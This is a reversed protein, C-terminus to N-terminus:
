QQVYTKEIILYLLSPQNWFGEIDTDFNLRRDVTGLSVVTTNRAGVKRNYNGSSIGLWDVNSLEEADFLWLTFGTENRGFILASSWDLLVVECVIFVEKCLLCSGLSGDIDEGFRVPVNL